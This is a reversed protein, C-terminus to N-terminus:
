LAGRYAQVRHLLEGLRNAEIGLTILAASM